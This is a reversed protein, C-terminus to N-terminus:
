EDHNEGKVEYLAAWTVGLIVAIALLVALNPLTNGTELSWITKRSLGAKKALEQQTMGLHERLERIRPQLDLTQMPGTWRGNLM